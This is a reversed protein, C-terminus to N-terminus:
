LKSVRPTDFSQHGMGLTDNKHMFLMWAQQGAETSPILAWSQGTKHEDAETTGSNGRNAVRSADSIGSIIRSRISISHLNIPAFDSWSPDNEQRHLHEWQKSDDQPM